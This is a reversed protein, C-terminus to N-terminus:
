YKAQRVFLSLAHNLILHIDEAPGYEGIETEVHLSVDALQRLRGGDFATIAATKVSLEAAVQFAEVLNPSNGSASIAVLLDGPEALVRLQRAFVEAYGHDNGVATVVAANDTLGVVRFPPQVHTSGVGFDTAMHSATAASGGNGILFITAGRERAAEFAEVMLQCASLDITGLLDAVREFYARTFQAASSIM